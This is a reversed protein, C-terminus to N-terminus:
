DNEKEDPEKKQETIFTSLYKRFEGSSQTQLREDSFHEDLLAQDNPELDGLLNSILSMHIMGKKTIKEHSPTNVSAVAGMFHVQEAQSLRYFGGSGFLSAGIFYTFTTDYDFGTNVDLWKMQARLGIRTGRSRAFSGVLFDTFNERTVREGFTYEQPEVTLSSDDLFTMPDVMYREPRARPAKEQTM